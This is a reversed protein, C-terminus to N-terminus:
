LYFFVKTIGDLITVLGDPYKEKKKEDLEKWQKLNILRNDKFLKLDEELYEELKEKKYIDKIIESLLSENNWKKEIQIQIEEDIIVELNDM